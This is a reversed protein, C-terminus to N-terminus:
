NLMDLKIKKRPKTLRDFNTPRRKTIRPEFRDPRDAVRHQAIAQSMQQDLSTLHEVGRHAQLSIVPQFAVLVQLKAGGPLGRYLLIAGAAAEEDPLLGGDGLQVTNFGQSVRHAILRAVAARCSPEASLVEGLFVWPTVLPTFIRDNWCAGIAALAQSVVEASLVDTFPLDRDRLFQERLFSVQSQIRGQISHRM